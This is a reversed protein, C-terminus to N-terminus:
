QERLHDCDQRPAPGRGQAHPRPVRCPMPPSRPARLLEQRHQCRSGPGSLRPSSAAPSIQVVHYRRPSRVDPDPPHNGYLLSSSSRSCPAAHRTSRRCRRGRHALKQTDRIQTAFTCEVRDPRGCEPGGDGSHRSRGRGAGYAGAAGPSNWISWGQLHDHLAAASGSRRLAIRLLMVLALAKAAIRM